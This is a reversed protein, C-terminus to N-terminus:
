SSKELFIYAIIIAMIFIGVTWYTWRKTSCQTNWLLLQKCKTRKAIKVVYCLSAYKRSVKWKSHFSNGHLNVKRAKRMSLLQKEKPIQWCVSCFTFIRWPTSNAGTSCRAALSNRRGEGLRCKIPQLQCLTCTSEQERYGKQKVVLAVSLSLVKLRRSRHM